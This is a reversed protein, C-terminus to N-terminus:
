APSTVFADLAVFSRCKTKVKELDLHAAMKENHTAHSYLPRRNDGRSLREIYEKPNSISEPNAIAKPRWSGFVKCACEIDALIWAELEQVPVVICCQSTMGSPRVIERMVLDRNESPDLGDADHCVIFRRLNLDGFLRLQKAGKRLLRGCGGFSKTKVHLSPNGALRRVLIKLVQTDSDDEALIGYM